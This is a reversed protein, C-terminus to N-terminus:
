PMQRKSLATGYGSRRPQESEHVHVDSGFPTACEAQVPEGWDVHDSCVAIGDSTTTRTRILTPLTADHVPVSNPVLFSAHLSCYQWKGFIYLPSFFSKTSLDEDERRSLLPTSPRSRICLITPTSRDKCDACVLIHCPRHIYRTAMTPRPGLPSALAPKGTSM